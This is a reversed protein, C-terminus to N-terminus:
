NRSMRELESPHPPQFPEYQTRLPPRARKFTAADVSVAILLQAAFYASMVLLSSAPFPSVFRNIALVSDSAVFLIAGIAALLSGKQRTVIWRNLAQWAMALIVVMYIMVALKMGAGSVHPLLVFMMLAGCLFFPVIYFPSSVRGAMYVFAATYFLHALLFSLLGFTFLDTPLMLLVDGLLSFCLGVVILRKYIFYEPESALAAIVIIIVMTLPKFIYEFAPPLYYVAYIDFAASAVALITLLLNLM